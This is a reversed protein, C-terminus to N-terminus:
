LLWEVECHEGHQVLFAEIEQGTARRLADWQPIAAPTNKNKRQRGGPRVVILPGTAGAAIKGWGDLALTGAGALTAMKLIDAPALDPHDEALLRMERWLSIRENSAPSDTGLAPLLGAALMGAVDPRGVGIFRNSGPCLVVKVGRRALLALDNSTAHVVHVCVTSADLVGLRDLYAIPDLGPRSPPVLGRRRFFDAFPGSGHRLFVVEEASEALHISFPVGQRQSEKKAWTLLRPGCSYPAHATVPAEPPTPPPEAGLLEHLFLRYLRRGSSGPPPDLASAASRNGIDLVAAVGQDHLEALLREAARRMVTDPVPHRERVFLLREIWAPMPGGPGVRGALWALELHTHANVLAPMLVGDVARWASARRGWQRLAPHAAVDSFPGAALVRGRDDLLVGGDAVPPGVIPVLWPARVLTAM